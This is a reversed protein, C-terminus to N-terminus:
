LKYVTVSSARDRQHFLTVRCPVFDAATCSWLDMFQQPSREMLPFWSSQVQVMIRHGARFTHAIDTTRFPVTEPKGPVFARPRTFGDRYRGRVADGRVLMQMGSKEGEDPFCDILKVVFDADSTSLAAELVAEVPGVLTTDEPLPESVFTLVDGRGALFRQDAVMYEKTRRLGSAAVYPVPDAPDSLYSTSSNKATPKETTLRGGAALYLTLRRAEAPTWRDFTHWRDDGSTFVAVPPLRDITDRAWLYCDFFPAEFHEMYYSGSAQEGFDFDGLRRGDGRWAGHSWPGAVLHVPTRSSQRVVARYLNWAGYCDEADYTGGVVLMAPRINYCARRTDRARWWEDYDPHGSMEEWFTNPALLTTLDARTPHELFFTREDPAFTLERRPMRDTPTHGPPTNMSNLFRVADSLMLIGNHHVDDGMYWDTVPAQPSVAKVAPHGSLAGMLAYFGPYSCGAFGVRGNNGPIHKVLWDVTDYSDTSEDVDGFGVPRVHMFEGESRNRGRVDQQVIIYGRDVYSRLYGKEFGAPFKDAGYPGTGYPTRFVLIPARGPAKPTYVSTHLYVSDRMAIRYEAKDYLSSVPQACVAAAALLGSWLLLLFRRLIM